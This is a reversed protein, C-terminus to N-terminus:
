HPRDRSSKTGPKRSQEGLDPDNAAPFRRRWSAPARVGTPIWLGHIDYHRPM